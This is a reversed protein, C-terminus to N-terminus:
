FSRIRMGVSISYESLGEVKGYRGTIFLFKNSSIPFEPQLVLGVNRYPIVNVGVWMRSFPDISNLGVGLNLVGQGSFPPSSNLIGLQVYTQNYDGFRLGTTGLAFYKFDLALEPYIIPSAGVNKELSAVGGLSGGLRFPGNMKTSFSVGGDVYSREHVGSCDEYTYHGGGLGYSIDSYTSDDAPYGVIYPLLLFLSFQPRIIKSITSLIKM